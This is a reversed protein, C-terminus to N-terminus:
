APVISLKHLDQVEVAKRTRSSVHDEARQDVGAYRELLDAPREAAERNRRGSDPGLPDRPGANRGCLEADLSLVSRQVVGVVVTTAVVVTAVMFVIMAMMVRAMTMDVRLRALFLMVVHVPREIVDVTQNVTRRQALRSLIARLFQKGPQTFGLCGYM